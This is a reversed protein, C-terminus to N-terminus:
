IKIFSYYFWILWKKWPPYKTTELWVWNMGLTSLLNEEIIWGLGEQCSCWVPRGTSCLGYRKRLKPRYVINALIWDAFTEMTKMLPSLLERRESAYVWTAASVALGYVVASVPICVTEVDKTSWQCSLTLEVEGPGNWFLLDIREWAFRQYGINPLGVLYSCIREKSHPPSM